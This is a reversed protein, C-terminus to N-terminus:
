ILMKLLLFPVIIYLALFVRYHMSAFIKPIPLSVQVLPEQKAAGEAVSKMSHRIAM